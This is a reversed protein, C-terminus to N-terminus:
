PSPPVTGTVAAGPSTGTGDPVRVLGRALLTRFMEITQQVGEAFPTLKAPGFLRESGSADLAAPFPLPVDDFVIADALAPASAAIAAIVEPMAVTWGSMNVVEANTLALRAAAVFLKAADAALQYVSTGGFGIRYGRGAAAALMALTPGSTLGQDRGVGYVICPRLGVSGLEYDRAYTAATWENAQKWTGYLTRPALPSGDQAVGGPYLEAPGFVAVSSAYALGRVQERHALAAEFVNVTGVVNVRAGQTPDSRCFPVQLAALHVINTVREDAITRAVAGADTIDGRVFRVRALEEPSAIQRLRRDDASLDFAV